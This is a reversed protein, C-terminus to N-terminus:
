IDSRKMSSMFHTMEEDAIERVARVAQMSTQWKGWEKLSFESEESDSIADLTMSLHSVTDGLRDPAPGGAGMGMGARRFRMCGSVWKGGSMHISRLGLPILARLLPRVTMANLGSGPM